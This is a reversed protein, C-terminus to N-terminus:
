MSSLERELAAAIEACRAEDTIKAGGEGTVYYSDLARDAETALVAGHVDLGLESLVLAGQFVVGIRDSCTVDIVTFADSLDNSILVKPETYTEVGHARLRHRGRLDRLEERGLRFGSVMEDLLKKRLTEATFRGEEPIAVWFRDVASGGGLTYIRATLISLGLHALIGSIRALLAKEDRAALTIEWHTARAAVHIGYGSGAASRLLDAHLAVEEVSHAALYNEGLIGLHAKAEAPPLVRELASLLEEEGAVRRAQAERYPALLTELTTEYLKQLLTAKWASWADPHVSSTDCYTLVYLNHLMAPTDIKTVFDRITKPDDLDRRQIVDNMLLHHLVLNSVIRCRAPSFGMREMFAFSIRAGSVSHGPGLGKGIDHYFCALVLAERDSIKELAGRLSALEKATTGGLYALQRVVTITHEDTTYIHYIDYHSHCYIYNFDPILLGILGVENMCRLMRGVREPRQCLALFRRLPESFDTGEQTSLMHVAQKLRLVANHGYGLRHENALDFYDLMLGINNRFPNGVRAKLDFVGDAVEFHEHGKLAAPTRPRKGDRPTWRSIVAETVRNVTKTHHYFVKLFIEVARASGEDTFGLEGAVEPQLHFSLRDDKKATIFHLCCRVQLLFDYAVRIDELEQPTILGERVLDDFNACDHKVKAIWMMSHVDRLCGTGEKLNPELMQVLSGMKGVREQHEELKARVLASLRWPLLKRSMMRGFERYLEYNGAIFRENLFSTWTEPDKASAERCQALSRVSAGVSFGFDWLSRILTEAQEREYGDPKPSTLVLLDIDSQPCLEMRGYGGVAVVAVWHADQPLGVEMTDWLVRLLTDVMESIFRVTDAGSSGDRNLRRIKDRQRQLVAKVERNRTAPDPQSFADRLSQVFDSRQEMQTLFRQVM